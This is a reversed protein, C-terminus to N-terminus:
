MRCGLFSRFLIQSLVFAHCFLRQPLVWFKPCMLTRCFSKHSCPSPTPHPSRRLEISWYEVAASRSLYRRDGLAVTSATEAGLVRLALLAGLVRLALLAGLVGLVLLSRGHRSARDVTRAHWTTASAGGHAAVLPAANTQKNGALARQRRRVPRRALATRERGGDDAPCEGGWDERATGGARGM